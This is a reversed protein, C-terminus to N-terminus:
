MLAGCARLFCDYLSKHSARGHNERIQVFFVEWGIIIGLVLGALPNLTPTIHILQINHTLIYSYTDNLGNIAVLILLMM